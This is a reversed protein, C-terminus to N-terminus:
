AICIDEWDDDQVKRAFGGKMIGRVYIQGLNHYQNAGHRRLLFPARAGRVIMVSDGIQCTAPALGLIHEGKRPTALAVMCLPMRQGRIYNLFKLGREDITEKALKRLTGETRSMKLAENKARDYFQDDKVLKGVYRQIRPEAMGFLYAMPNGGVIKIQDRIESIAGHAGPMFTAMYTLNSDFLGLLSPREQQPHKFSNGDYLDPDCLFLHVLSEELSKHHEGIKLDGFGSSRMAADICQAADGFTDPSSQLPGSRYEVTDYFYAKTHLNQQQIMLNFAHPGGAQFCTHTDWEFDPANRSWDPVWSKTQPRLRPANVVLLEKGRGRRVFAEAFCQYVEECSLTYDAGPYEDADCAMNLLAFIKDRPDTAQLNRAAKLLSLLGRRHSNGTLAVFDTFNELARAMALKTSVDKTSFSSRIADMEPLRSLPLVRRTAENSAYWTTLPVEMALERVIEWDLDSTGIVCTIKRSFFVEQMCWCRTYYKQSIIYDICAKWPKGSTDTIAEEGTSPANLDKGSIWELFTTGADTSVGNPGIINRLHPGLKGSQMERHVKSQRNRKVYRYLAPIDDRNGTGEGLYVFCRDSNRYIVNMLAVQQSREEASKQDICVQDIWLRHVRRRRLQRLANFVTLSVKHSSGNVKIWRYEGDNSWAYSLTAYAPLDDISAAKLSCEIDSSDGESESINSDSDSSEVRRRSPCLVLLRIHRSRLAEHQYVKASM